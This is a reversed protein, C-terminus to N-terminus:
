KSKKMSIGIYQPTILSEVLGFTIRNFLGAKCPTLNINAYVATVELCSTGVLSGINKKCFFRLHTRDFTGKERYAFNKKVFLNYFVSLHGFNPVSAILIGGEVLYDSLKNVIKWPNYLHELVDGCIVVDFYNNAIDIDDKEIDAIIMKDILPHTQQSSPLDFLEIGVVEKAIGSEKLAVLTDGGGAGIELVKLSRGAPVLKILDKRVSTYYSIQKEQYLNM